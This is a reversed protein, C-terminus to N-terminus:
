KGVINLPADDIQNIEELIIRRFSTPDKINNILIPSGGMGHLEIQGFNFIRGLLTQQVQVSEIKHLNIEFVKINLIGKKMAVKLNTLVLETSNIIFFSKLVIFLFSAILILGVYGTHDIDSLFTPSLLGVILLFVAFMVSNIQTYWSLSSAYRIQENNALSQDFYSM